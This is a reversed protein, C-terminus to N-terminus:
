REATPTVGDARIFWLGQVGGGEELHLGDLRDLPGQAYLTSRLLAAGDRRM